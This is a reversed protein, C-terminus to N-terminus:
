VLIILYSCYVLIDWGLGIYHSVLPICPYRLRVIYHSILPICPYRLRFCYLSIRQICSIDWGLVVYNSELLICPYILNSIWLKFKSLQNYKISPERFFTIQAIRICSFMSSYNDSNFVKSKLWFVVIDEVDIIPIFNWHYQQLDPMAM